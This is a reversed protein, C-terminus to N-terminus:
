SVFRTQHLNCDIAVCCFLIQECLRFRNATFIYQCHLTQNGCSFIAVDVGVHFCPFDLNDGLFQTDKGFGFCGGELNLVVDSYLIIQTQFITIQIQSSRRLQFIQHQTMLNYLHHSVEQIFLAKQLNFSRNQAFGCGFACSVIEYRGAYVGAIEITQRLGRLQILLKQHNGTHVSVILNRFAETVLIQTRVSLGFKCLHVHLQGEHFDFIDHIDVFSHHLLYELIQHVYIDLQGQGSHGICLCHLAKTGILGIYAEAHLQFINGINHCTGIKHYEFRSQFVAAAHTGDIRLATTGEGSLFDVRQNLKYFCILCLTQSPNHYVCVACDFGLNCFEECGFFHLFDYIRHIPLGTVQNQNTRILILDYEVGKACQTYLQAFHQLQCLGIIECEQPNCFERHQFPIFLFVSIYRHMMRKSCGHILVQLQNVGIGASHTCLCVIDNQVAILQTAAGDSDM